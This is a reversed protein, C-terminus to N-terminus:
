EPELKPHKRVTEVRVSSDADRSDPGNGTEGGSANDDGDGLAEQDRSGCLSNGPAPQTKM